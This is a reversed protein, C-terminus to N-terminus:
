KKRVTTVLRVVGIVVGSLLLSGLLGVLIGAMIPGAPEDGGYWWGAAAGLAGGVLIDRISM